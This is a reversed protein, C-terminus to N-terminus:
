DFESIEGTMLKLLTTKGVGNGGVISVRDRENLIFDVGKLIENDHIEFKDIKIRLHKM